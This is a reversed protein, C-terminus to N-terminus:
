FVYFYLLIILALTTCYCCSCATYKKSKDNNRIQITPKVIYAANCIVCRPNIACWETMCKDHVSYKCDCTAYDPKTGEFDEMCIICQDM